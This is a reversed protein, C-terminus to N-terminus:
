LYDKLLRSLDKGDLYLQWGGHKMYYKKMHHQILGTKPVLSVCAESGYKNIALRCAFAILCGPIGDYIKEKGKNEVSSALLRIEIRNERPWEILGVVGLIKDDRKLHLKYVTTSSKITKWVFSFRRKTLVKFDEDAAERIIVLKKAGTGVEVINM